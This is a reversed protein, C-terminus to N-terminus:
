VEFSKMKAKLKAIQRQFNTRQIELEGQYRTQSAELADYNESKIRNLEKESDSRVQELEMELAKIREKLVDVESM